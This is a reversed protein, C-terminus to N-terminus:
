VHNGRHDAKGAAPPGCVHDSLFFRHDGGRVGLSHTGAETFCAPVPSGGTGFQLDGPQVCIHDYDDSIDGVASIGPSHPVGNREGACVAPDSVAISTNEKRARQEVLYDDAVGRSGRCVAAADTRDAPVGPDWPSRGPKGGAGAAMKWPDQGAPYITKCDTGDNRDKRGAGTNEYSISPPAAGRM